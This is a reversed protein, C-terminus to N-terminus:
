NRSQGCGSRRALRRSSSDDKGMNILYAFCHTSLTDNLLIHESQTLKNVMLSFVATTIKPAATCM